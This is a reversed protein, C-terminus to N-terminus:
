SDNKNQSFREITDKDAGPGPIILIDEDQLVDGEINRLQLPEIPQMNKRDLLVIPQEDLTYLHTNGWQLIAFVIIKLSQGKETVQYAYRTGKDGVNVKEFIGEDVLTNLRVTLLNKAIGTNTQFDKFRTIGYFSERLILFVWKDGFINLGQAIPCSHTHRYTM